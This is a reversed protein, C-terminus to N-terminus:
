IILYDTSDTQYTLFLNITSLIEWLALGYYMIHVM